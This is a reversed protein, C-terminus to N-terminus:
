KNSNYIENVAEIYCNFSPHNSDRRNLYLNKKELYCDRAVNWLGRKELSNVKKTLGKSDPGQNWFYRDMSTFGTKEHILRVITVNLVVTFKFQYIQQNFLLM